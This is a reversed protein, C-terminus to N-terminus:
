NRTTANVQELAEQRSACIPWLRHLTAIELIKRENDSINCFAMRGGRSTVRKWFKVFLGLATSGYYDTKNLDIVVNKIRGSEVLEFVRKAGAEIRQYEFERMHTTPIVVITDGHHELHFLDANQAARTM